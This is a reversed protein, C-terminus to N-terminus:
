SRSRTRGRGSSSDAATDDPAVASHDNARQPNSDAPQSGTLRNKWRDLGSLSLVLGGVATGAIPFPLGVAIGGLVGKLGSALMPEHGYRHQVFGVGILSLVFGIFAIVSTGLGLSLVNGSFLLWDLALIIAGSAPHLFSRDAPSSSM